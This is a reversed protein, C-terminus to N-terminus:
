GDRFHKSLKLRQRQYNSAVEVGYAIDPIERMREFVLKVFMQGHEVLMPTDRMRVELVASAGKIEGKKGFGFGPDFFGAYHTRFEGIGAHFDVMESALGIPISVYERSRLIYFFDPDLILTGSAPRLIPEWFDSVAYTDVKALDLPLANKKSRYGVIPASLDLTLFLGHEQILPNISNGEPDFVLPTEKHIAHLEETSLPSRSEDFFRIQNLCLGPHVIIDFSMPFVVLYLKGKYGSPITDFTASGEAILRAFVDVRGTSSKPNSRASIHSPLNLAETLEIVYTKRAELFIPGDRSLAYYHLAYADLRERITAGSSALFSAPVRWVKGTLRLDMSSPQIQSANVPPSVIQDDLIMQRIGQSPVVGAM